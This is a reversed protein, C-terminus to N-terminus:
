EIRKRRRRILLLTAVGIVAGGSIVSILIILEVPFGGGIQIPCKMLPFNDQRSPVGFIIYPTDGIGNGDEDLGTYDAWYNGLIGNDWNNKPIPYLREDNASSSFCNLYIYNNSSHYVNILIHLPLIFLYFYFFYQITFHAM